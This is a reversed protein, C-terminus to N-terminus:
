RKGGEKMNLYVHTNVESIKRKSEEGISDLIEIEDFITNSNYITYPEDSGWIVSDGYESCIRRLCGAPDSYDMKLADDERWDFSCLLLFPSTDVFLNERKRTEDLFGKSMWGMHAGAIKVEPYADAVGILDMPDSYDMYNYRIDPLIINKSDTHVMISLGYERALNMFDSGRLGSIPSRAFRSHLKLGKVDHNKVLEKVDEFNNYKGICISLFPILRNNKESCEIVYRNEIEYAHNSKGSPKMEYDHVSDLSFFLTFPFPFIVSREIGGRDMKEILGEATQQQPQKNKYVKYEDRGVHTHVDIMNTEKVDKERKGAGM